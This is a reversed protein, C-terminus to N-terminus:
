NGNEELYLQNIGAKFQNDYWIDQMNDTLKNLLFDKWFAEMFIIHEEDVYDILQTIHLTNLSDKFKEKDINVVTGDDSGIIWHDSNETSPFEDDNKYKTNIKFKSMKENLRNFVKRNPISKFSESLEAMVCIIAADLKELNLYFREDAFRMFSEDMTSPAKAVEDIDNRYIMRDGANVRKSINRVINSLFHQILAPHGTTKRFIYEATVDSGKISLVLKSELTNILKLASDKSLYNVPIPEFLGGAFPNKIKQKQDTKEVDFHITNYLNMFGAVIIKIGFDNQMDRLHQFFGYDLPKNKLKYVQKLSDLYIDIEDILIVLTKNKKNLKQLYEEFTFKYSELDSYKEKSFGLRNLIKLGLAYTTNFDVELAEISAVSISVVVFGDLAEYYEKSHKLLSSKGIRRAGYIAYSTTDRVLKNFLIKRNVYIGTEPSVIKETNYPNIENLNKIAVIEHLFKERVDITDDFLHVLSRQDFEIINVKQHKSKFKSDERRKGALICVLCYNEKIQNGELTEEINIVFDEFERRSIINKRSASLVTLIIRTKDDGIPSYFIQKTDLIPINISTKLVRCNEGKLDRYLGFLNASVKLFEIAHEVTQNINIKQSYIKYKKKFLKIYSEVFTKSVLDEDLKQLLSSFRKKQNIKDGHSSLMLQHATLLDFDDSINISENEMEHIIDTIDSLKDDTVGDSMITKIQEIILECFDYQNFDKNQVIKRSLTLLEDIKDRQNPIEIEFIDGQITLIDSKFQETKNAIVKKEERTSKLRDDKHIDLIIQSYGLADINLWNNFYDREETRINHRQNDLLQFKEYYGKQINQHKGFGHKISINTITKTYINNELAKDLNIQVLDEISSEWDHVKVMEILKSFDAVGTDGNKYIDKTLDYQYIFMNKSSLLYKCFSFSIDKKSISSDHNFVNKYLNYNNIIIRDLESLDDIKLVLKNRDRVSLVNTISKILADIIRTLDISLNNKQYSELSKYPKKIDAKNWIGDINQSFYKLEKQMEILRYVEFTKIIKSYFNKDLFEVIEKIEKIVGGYCKKQIIPHIYTSGERIFFITSPLKNILEGLDLIEIEKGDLVSTIISTYNVLASSSLTQIISLCIDHILDDNITQIFVSSILVFKLKETENEEIDYQFTELVLRVIEILLYHNLPKNFKNSEFYQIVQILDIQNFDNDKLYKAFNILTLIKDDKIIYNKLLSERVPEKEPSIKPEKEEKQSKFKQNLIKEIKELANFSVSRRVLTLYEHRLNINKPKDLEDELDHKKKSLHKKEEDKLRVEYDDLKKKMSHIEDIIILQKDLGGQENMYDNFYEEIEKSIANTTTEISDFITQYKNDIYVFKNNLQDILLEIGENFMQSQKHFSRYDIDIGRGNMISLQNSHFESILNNNIGIEKLKDLDDDGMILCFDNERYLEELSSNIQILNDINNKNYFKLYWEIYYHEDIYKHNASDIANQNTMIKIQKNILRKFDTLIVLRSSISSHQHNNSAVFKTLKTKNELLHLAPYPFKIIKDVEGNSLSINTDIEDVTFIQIELVKGILIKMCSHYVYILRLSFKHKPNESDKESFEKKLNNQAWILNSLEEILSYKGHIKENQENRSEINDRLECWKKVLDNIDQIRNKDNINTITIKEDSFQQLDNTLTSILELDQLQDEVSKLYQKLITSKQKKTLEVKRNKLSKFSELINKDDSYIVSCLLLTLIIDVKEYKKELIEFDKSSCRKKPIKIYNVKPMITSFRQCISKKLSNPYLHSNKYNFIVYILIYAFTKGEKSKNSCIDWLSNIILSLPINNTIKTYGPFNFLSPYAKKLQRSIHLIQKKPIINILSFFDDKDLLKFILYSAKEIVNGELMTPMEM